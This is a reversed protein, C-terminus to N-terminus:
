LVETKKLRQYLWKMTSAQNNVTSEEGVFAICSNATQVGTYFM